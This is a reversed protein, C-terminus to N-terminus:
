VFVVHSSASLGPVYRPCHVSYQPACCACIASRTMASVGSWNSAQRLSRLRKSRLGVQRVAFRRDVFRQKGRRQPPQWRHARCARRRRERARVERVQHSASVRAAPVIGFVGAWREAQITSGCAILGPVCIGAAQDTPAPALPSGCSGPFRSSLAHARCGFGSAKRQGYRRGLIERAAQLRDPPLRGPMTPKRAVTSWLFIPM